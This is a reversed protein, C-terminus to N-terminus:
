VKMDLAVCAMPLFLCVGRTHKAAKIINKTKGACALQDVVVGSFVGDCDEVGNSVALVCPPQVVM